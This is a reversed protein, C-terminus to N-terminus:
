YTMEWGLTMGWDAGLQLGDYRQHVPFVWELAVRHGAFRGEPPMLFNVGVPLYARSGELFYADNGPDRLPDLLPDAGQIGSWSQYEVRGSFSFSENLRFAAWATAEYRSGPSFDSSNKGVYLAGKVQAGLSSTENQVLATLGPLLAFTGGGARMEYPLAEEGGNSFPTPATGRFKGTPVLAGAQLHARYAGQDYISYLATLELDGLADSDTVYFVDADTLQERQRQSFSAEARLTLNPRLAYGIGVHHTMAVMSIPAVPYFDHTEDVTLSDSQFWVGRSNLQEFRYSLDLQGEDLILAGTVGRPARGDPRNTSWVYAEEQAALPSAVAVLTAVLLIKRLM